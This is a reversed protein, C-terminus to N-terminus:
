FLYGFNVGYVYGNYRSTHDWSITPLIMFRDNKLYLKYELSLKFLALNENKEFEVGYGSSIILGKYLRFFVTPIVLAASHREVERTAGDLDDVQIIHSGLEIESMVGIGLHENIERIYEIGVTPLNFGSPRIITTGLFLTCANHYKVIHNDENHKDQAYSKNSLTFLILILSLILYRIKM